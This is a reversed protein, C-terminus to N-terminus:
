LFQFVHLSPRIVQHLSKFWRGKSVFNDLLLNFM